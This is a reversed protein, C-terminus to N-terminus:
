ARCLQGLEGAIKESFVDDKIWAFWRNKRWVGFMITSSLYELIVFDSFM